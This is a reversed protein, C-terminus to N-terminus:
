TRTTSIRGMFLRAGSPKHHLVIFFPRDAKFEVPPPPPDMHASTAVMDIATVAAAETGEEDIALFTKHIVASIALAEQQTIGSFDAAGTFARRMGMAQLDTVLDYSANMEVKPLTVDLREPDAGGLEAMWHTLQEGTLANEFATIGDVQRPLFVALAFAGSDYDFDAAQFTRNEIYRAHTIQRMLRAPVNEGSATRFQGDRTSNATFPDTWKGKFYIANTLVLRRDPNPETLITPIRGRTNELAWANITRLAAQPQAIFDVSEITANLDARITRAYAMDLHMTREVWAANAVTLESGGTQTQLEDALARTQRVQEDPAAFGLATAIESLTEGRAGPYVLAFASSVSYPSVFQNGAEAAVARYLAVDFQDGAAAPTVGSAAPPTEEGEESVSTGSCASVATAAATVLLTRRNM